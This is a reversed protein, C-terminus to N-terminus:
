RTLGGLSWFAFQVVFQHGPHPEFDAGPLLRGIWIPALEGIM